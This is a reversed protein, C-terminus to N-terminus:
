EEEEEDEMIVVVVGLAVVVNRSFPIGGFWLLM